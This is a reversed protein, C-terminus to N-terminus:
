NMSERLQYLVRDADKVTIFGFRPFEIDLIVYVTLAIVVAFAIVHTWNRFRGVAMGYGALLSSAMSLVGLV